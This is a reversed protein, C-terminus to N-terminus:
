PSNCPDTIMKHGVKAGHRDSLLTPRLTAEAQPQPDLLAEAPTLRVQGQTHFTHGTTDMVPMPLLQHLAPPSAGSGSPM